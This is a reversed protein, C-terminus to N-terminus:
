SLDKITRVLEVQVRKMEILNKATENIARAQDIYKPDEQIKKITDMLTTGLGKMPLNDQMANYLELANKKDPRPEVPLFEKRLDKGNVRIVRTNTTVKFLNREEEEIDQIVYNGGKYLYTHGIMKLFSKM